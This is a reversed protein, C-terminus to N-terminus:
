ERGVRRAVARFPEGHFEPPRARPVISSAPRRAAHLRSRIWADGLALPLHQSVDARPEQAVNARLACRVRGPFRRADSDLLTLASSAVKAAFSTAGPHSQYRAEPPDALVSREVKANSMVRLSEPNVFTTFEV